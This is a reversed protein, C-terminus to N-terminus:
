KERWSYKLLSRLNHTNIREPLEVSIRLSKRLIQQRGRSTLFLLVEALVTNRLFIIFTETHVGHGIEKKLSHCIDCIGRSGLLSIGLKLLTDLLKKLRWKFCDKKKKKDQESGVAFKGDLTRENWLKQAIFDM